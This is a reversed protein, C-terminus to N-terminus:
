RWRDSQGPRCPPPFTRNSHLSKGHCPGKTPPSHSSPSVRSNRALGRKKVFGLKRCSRIGGEKGNKGTKKRDKLAESLVNLPGKPRVRKVPMRLANSRKSIKAFAGCRQKTESSQKSYITGSERKGPRCKRQADRHATLISEKRQLRKGRKPTRREKWKAEEGPLWSYRPRWSKKAGWSKKEQCVINWGYLLKKTVFERRQDDDDLTLWRLDRIRNTQIISIEEEESSIDRERRKKDKMNKEKKPTSSAGRGIDEKETRAPKDVGGTKVKASKGRCMTTHLGTM